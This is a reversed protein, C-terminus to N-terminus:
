PLLPPPVPVPLATTWPQTSRALQSLAHTLNPPLRVSDPISRVPHRACRHSDLWSTFEEESM